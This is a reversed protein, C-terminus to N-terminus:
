NFNSLPNIDIGELEIRDHIVAMKQGQFASYLYEHAKEKMIQIDTKIGANKMMEDIKQQRLSLLDLKEELRSQATSIELNLNAIKKQKEEIEADLKESLVQKGQMEAEAEQDESNEEMVFDNQNIQLGHRTSVFAMVLFIGIGVYFFKEM